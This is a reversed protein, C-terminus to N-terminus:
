RLLDDSSHRRIITRRNSAGRPLVIQQTLRSASPTHLLTQPTTTSITTSPTNSTPTAVIVATAPVVLPTPEKSLLEQQSPATAEVITALPPSSEVCSVTVLVHFKSNAECSIENIEPTCTVQIQSNQLSSQISENSQPTWPLVPDEPRSSTSFLNNQTHFSNYANRQQIITTTPPPSPPLIIPNNLLNPPLQTRCHPCLTGGSNIINTLCDHHYWINCCGPSVRQRNSGITTNRCIGCMDSENKSLLSGM